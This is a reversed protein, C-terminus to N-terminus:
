AAINSDNPEDAEYARASEECTCVPDIHCCVNSGCVTCTSIHSDLCDAHDCVVAFELFSDM